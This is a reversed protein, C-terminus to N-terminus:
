IGLQKLKYDRTETLRASSNLSKLKVKYNASCSKSCFLGWGRKINRNDPIYPKNCYTCLYKNNQYLKAKEFLNM